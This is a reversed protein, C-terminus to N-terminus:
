LNAFDSIKKWLEERGEKTKASYPLVIVSPLQEKIKLVKEKIAMKGLKDSKNAVIIVKHNNETLARMMEQDLPTAGVRIDMILLVLAPKNNEIYWFIRKIMKNREKASRKAYGYGPFDVFYLSNNVCFFNAATTKGPIKSTKVFSKRNVLSNIASSKGANSRGFFVVQPLEDKTNYDEGVVSKIFEVKMKQLVYQFCLLLVM